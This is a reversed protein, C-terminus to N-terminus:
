SLIMTKPIMERRLFVSQKELPKLGLLQQGKLLKVSQKARLHSRDVLGQINSFM